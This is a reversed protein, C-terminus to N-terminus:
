RGQPDGWREWVYWRRERPTLPLGKRSEGRGQRAWGDGCQALGNGYQASGNGYQARNAGASQGFREQDTGDTNKRVTSFRERVTVSGNEYQAWRDGCQALGNGCQARVTGASHELRERVTGLGNIHQAWVTGAHHWFTGASHRVTGAGHRVTRTDCSLRSERCWCEYYSDVREEQTFYRGTDRRARERKKIAFNAFERFECGM